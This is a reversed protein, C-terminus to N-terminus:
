RDRNNFALGPWPFFEAYEFKLSLTITLYRYSLDGPTKVKNFHFFIIMRHRFPRKAIM